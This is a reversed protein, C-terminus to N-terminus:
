RKKSLLHGALALHDLGSNLFVHLSDEPTYCVPYGHLNFSTNLVVGRGTKEEFASIMRHYGPNATRTVLQPRLTRDRPHSGATLEPYTEPKSRFAFTMFQPRINKPDDYYRPQAEETIAPAFPMWFDRMKIMNNIKEVVRYDDASALISRNGLSRAGWEMRGRARAVVDGAALLGAIALDMDEPRTVAIDDRDALAKDMAPLEHEEGWEGGLYLHGFVSQGLDTDGTREYYRQLCAGISLSEDGGSPMVYFSDVCDLEAMLMNAKVNMFVGGGCVVHRIGTRAVAARVLGTLMEETFLQVAGSITDFRVREFHERLYEYCYNMSLETKQEFGLGDERLGLVARLPEAARHCREPDAYPALGMLKYEHEWPKMGMLMTARSYIKGLSAHRGTHAIREIRPGSCVNVTACIGDGSGDCTICLTKEVTGSVPATFHASAAHALHHEVFVIRGEPVGLLEVAQDIRERRRKEFILRKTEEPRTKPDNRQEQLGVVYWPELDTLYVTSHMFESAYAVEDLDKADAGAIRLVELISRRPFGVENKSGTLREECIAAVIVGNVSLAAGCNHGDHIGLILTQKSM